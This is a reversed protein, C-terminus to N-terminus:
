ATATKDGKRRFFPQGHRAPTTQEVKEVFEVSPIPHAPDEVRHELILLIGTREQGEVDLDTFSPRACLEIGGEKLFVTAIAIAKIAANLAGAGITRIMTTGNERIFGAIAGAVKNPDSDSGVKMIVVKQKGM